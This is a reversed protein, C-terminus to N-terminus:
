ISIFQRRSSRRVQPMPISATRSILPDVGAVDKLFFPILKVGKERELDTFMDRIQEEYERGANSPALMGALLVKM